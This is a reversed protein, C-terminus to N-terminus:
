MYMLRCAVNDKKPFEYINDTTNRVHFIGYHKYGSGQNFEGGVYLFWPKTGTLGLGGYDTFYTTNSGEYETPLFGSESTGIVSKIYGGSSGIASRLVCRYVYDDSEHMRTYLHIVNNSCLIKANLLGCYLNGYIDELGFLKVHTSKDSSGYILPCTATTGTGGPTSVDQTYGAGLITSADTNGMFQLLYMAQIYVHQYFGEVIYGDGKNKAYSVFSSNYEIKQNPM